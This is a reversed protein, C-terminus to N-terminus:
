VFVRFLEFYLLLLLTEIFYWQELVKDSLEDGNWKEEVTTWGEVIADICYYNGVFQHV